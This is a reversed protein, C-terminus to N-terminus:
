KKNYDIHKQKQLRIFLKFLDFDHVTPAVGPTVLYPTKMNETHWILGFNAQQIGNTDQNDNIRSHYDNTTQRM